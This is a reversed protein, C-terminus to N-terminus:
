RSASAKRSYSMFPNLMKEPDSTIWRRPWSTRCSTSHKAPLLFGNEKCPMTQYLDLHLRNWRSNRCERPHLGIFRPSISIFLKRQMPTLLQSSTRSANLTLLYGLFILSSVCSLTHMFIITNESGLLSFPKNSEDVKLSDTTMVLRGAMRMYKNPFSAQLYNVELHSAM